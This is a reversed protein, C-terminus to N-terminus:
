DIEMGEGILNFGTRDFCKISNEKDHVIRVCLGIRSKMWEATYKKGKSTVFPHDRRKGRIVREHSNRM